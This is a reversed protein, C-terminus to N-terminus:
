RELVRAVKILEEAFDCMERAMDKRRSAALRKRQMPKNREHEVRDFSMPFDLGNPFTVHVTYVDSRPHTLWVDTLCGIRKEILEKTSDVFDKFRRNM